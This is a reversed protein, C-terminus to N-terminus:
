FLLKELFLSLPNSWKLAYVFHTKIFEYGKFHQSGKENNLKAKNVTKQTKMKKLEFNNNVKREECVEETFDLCLKM